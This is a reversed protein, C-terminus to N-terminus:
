RRARSRARANRRRLARRENEELGGWVGSDQNNELAWELCQDTVPCRACVAKAEEAQLAAPGSTGIPFFLEPDEDICAASQRWNM